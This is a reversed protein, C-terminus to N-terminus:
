AQILTGEQVVTEPIAGLYHIGHIIIKIFDLAFCLIALHSSNEHLLIHLLLCRM